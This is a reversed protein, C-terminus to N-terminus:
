GALIKEIAELEEVSFELNNLAGVIDKIQDLRNAGFLASTIM